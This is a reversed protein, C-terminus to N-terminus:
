FYYITFYLPVFIRFYVVTKNKPIQNTIMFSLAGSIAMASYSLSYNDLSQHEQAFLVFAYKSVGMLLYFVFLFLFIHKHKLLKKYKM